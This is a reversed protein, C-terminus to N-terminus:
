LLEVLKTIDCLNDVVSYGKSTFFKYNNHRGKVGIFKAGANEAFEMDKKSDGVVLLEAPSIKYIKCFLEAAQPNPKLPCDRNDCAIFTFYSLIGSNELSHKTSSETDATVIGMPIDANQACGLLEKVGTLLCSQEPERYSCKEFISYIIDREVYIDVSKFYDGWIDVIQTRSAKQFLSDIEFGYDKFGTLMKLSSIHEIPLNAVQQLEFFIDRAIPHWYLPFDILTGDKDFLIGRIKNIKSVGM